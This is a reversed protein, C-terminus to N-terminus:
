AFAKAIFDCSRTIVLTTNKDRWGGYPHGEGDLVVYDCVKGAKKLADAMLKSQSPDVIGDKNGHMLLVPAAIAEANRAPSAAILADRDAVPDGIRDVWTQYVPSDEHDTRKEWALIEPLDSVGALSVACRYLGPKRVAGILAAYGGYSAGWIAVRKPDARGTALVYAVADEVDEQMRDGWHRHGALAFAKGYGASGRFNPQLVMWGRAAFAQATFDYDLKDRVEPGGHPMVVLPRPGTGAVALPVTLYARMAVGDRTKIDLMETPALRDRLWPRAESLPDFRRAERDYFYYVGAEQPGSARVVFRTKEPNWDVIEVNCQNDFFKNMAKFHGVLSKDAFDYETRDGSVQAAFYRSHEDFLADEIDAGDRSAVVAGLALTKLDFQHLAVGADEPASNLVLWINPDDGGAPGMIQFDPRDIDDYKVKRVLKWHTEGIPRAYIAETKATLFDWRLVPVGKVTMFGLTNDVGSELLKSEGTEVDVTHLTPLQVRPDWLMMIIHSPDDPLYDVVTSLDTNTDAYEPADNLLLVANGARDVSVLRRVTYDFRRHIYSGGSTDAQAADIRVGILLRDNNAWRITEVAYRGVIIPAIKADPNAADTLTIFALRKGDELKEHLVAIQRGDPSLTAGYTVPRRLLEEISPPQPPADAAWARGGLAWLGGALPAAAGAAMVSRRSIM